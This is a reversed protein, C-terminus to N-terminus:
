LVSARENASQTRYLEIMERYLYYRFKADELDTTIKILKTRLPVLEDEFGTFKWTSEVQAMSPPKGKIFYKEDNLVLKTIKSEEFRIELELMTKQYSLETIKDVLEFMKDIDPLEIKYSM